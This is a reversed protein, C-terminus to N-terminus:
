GTAAAHIKATSHLFTTIFPSYPTKCRRKFQTVNLLTFLGKRITAPTSLAKMKRSILIVGVKMWYGSGSMTPLSYQLFFSANKHGLQRQVATASEMIFVGM